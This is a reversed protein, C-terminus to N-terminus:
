SSVLPEDLVRCVVEEDSFPQRGGAFVQFQEDGKGAVVVVDRPGASSIAQRIARERDLEVACPTAPPLGRRIADAIQRPNESRPNDSTILLWDALDGAVSGMLPRKGADRDGGCGFVCWLAGADEGTLFHDRVTQLLLELGDPNHAYDIIVVPRGARRVPQLRGPVPRLKAIAGLADGFTWGSLLLVALVAGVNLANPRGLLATHFEGTGAPSTVALRTGSADQHVARVVVDAQTEGFTLVEVGPGLREKVAATYDDGAKVVALKLASSDFLRLKAEAYRQRDGHYDLHDRGLGTFVATHFRVGGVRHQDLAHSSVEMAVQRAGAGRFEALMRHLNLVDPTTLGSPHLRGAFGCGRTGIIACRPEVQALFDTTSTKGNTGTVGIIRMAASPTGYYHHAIDGVVTRLNPVVRWPIPPVPVPEQDLLAAVAGRRIADQLFHAGNHEGGRLGFFLDGPSVARSDLSLGRIQLTEPLAWDIGAQALLKTLSPGANDM